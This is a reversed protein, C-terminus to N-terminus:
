VCHEHVTAIFVLVSGACVNGRSRDAEKKRSRWQEEIKARGKLVMVLFHGSKNMVSSEKYCLESKTMDPSNCARM